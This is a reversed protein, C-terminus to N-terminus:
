IIRNKDCGASESQIPMLVPGSSSILAFCSPQTRGLGTTRKCCRRHDYIRPVLGLEALQINSAPATPYEQHGRTRNQRVNYHQTPPMHQLHRQSHPELPPPRPIQLHLGYHVHGFQRPVASHSSAPGADEHHRLPPLSLDSASHDHSWGYSTSPEIQHVHESPVYPYHSDEDLPLFSSFDEKRRRGEVQTVWNSTAPASMGQVPVQLTARHSRASSNPNYSKSPLETAKADADWEQPPIPKPLASRTHWHGALASLVDDVVSDEKINWSVKRDGGAM